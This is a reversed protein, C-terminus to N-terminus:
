KAHMWFVSILKKTCFVGCFCKSQLSEKRSREAKEGTNWKKFQAFTYLLLQSGAM